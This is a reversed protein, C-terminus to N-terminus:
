AATWRTGGRRGRTRGFRQGNRERHDGTARAHLHREQPPLPSPSADPRQTDTSARRACAPGGAPTAPQVGMDALLNVTAQQMRLDATGPAPDHTPWGPGLEVAGHGRRLGVRRLRHKYLTLSHVARGPGYTSGTTRPAAAPRGGRHPSLRILGPPRFGNDVDEDWEYGLTDTPSRPWRGPRSAPSRPTAGCGSGARPPPSRSRTAHLLQGHLADRDACEGPQSGAPNFARADRWTGTWAGPLPDLKTGAHTDKYAVLTRHPTGSGDLAPEWRTRWFVENGSFFALHVGAERAAEVNARQAASWYEDHGVSLFVRHELLEAGRRDTDVGTTYSVDYGNAELWRVMPYESNFVWDEIADDRTTFPRNYRSRTPGARRAAGPLPQQRRLRQLGALHHGLDPLPPRSGGEDDRVVFVVHSTGLTGDERVLKAFYIGSTATTPVQWRASLAWNGCDVLGTAPETLCAPQSQPLPVDPRITDVKRAGLGGYFGMRYIDLRYDLADTQVKFSVSAGRNVSIDTAFGQISRSGAGTIEWEAPPSGPQCNEAVIANAPASCWPSAALADSTWVSAMLLVAAGLGRM